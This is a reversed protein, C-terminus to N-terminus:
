HSWRMGLAKGYGMLYAATLSLRQNCPYDLKLYLPLGETDDWIARYTLVIEQGNDLQGAFTFFDHVLGTVDTAVKLSDTQDHFECYGLGNDYGEHYRAKLISVDVAYAKESGHHSRLRPLPPFVEEVFMEDYEPVAFLPGTILLYVLLFRAYGMFHGELTLIDIKM